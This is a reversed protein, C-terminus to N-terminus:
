IDMASEEAVAVAQGPRLIENGRVVVQEGAALNGSTVEINNRYARGTTIERPQAKSVGDESEVTWVTTKGDPARVVADAPVILAAEASRDEIKLIVRASMGPALMGQDNHLDIRVPFTRANIDSVPITTTVTAEFIQRPLSDFRIAVPTGQRVRSFYFQPVPTELRLFNTEVLEVLPSNTEVWQGVEVLKERIVGDFPARVTHRDLLAQARRDTARIQALAAEAIEIETRASEVNTEPVHQKKSLALLEGYRRKADGFRARAEAVAATTSSKEIAALDNNLKVILKGTTVRDGGDVHLEEVIGDVETSLQSVRRARLTGTLRLEEVIPARVARVVSVPMSNEAPLPASLVVTAVAVLVCVRHRILDTMPDDSLLRMVPMGTM